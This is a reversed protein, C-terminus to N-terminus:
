PRGQTGTDGNRRFTQTPMAYKKAEDLLLLGISHKSSEPSPIGALLDMADKGNVLFALKM